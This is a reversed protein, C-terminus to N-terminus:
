IVRRLRPEPVGSFDRREVLCTLYPDLVEWLSEMDTEADGTWLTMTGGLLHRTLVLLLSEFALGRDPTRTGRSVVL